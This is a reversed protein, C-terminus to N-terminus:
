YWHRWRARRKNTLIFLLSCHTFQSSSNVLPCHGLYIYTHHSVIYCSLWICLSLRFLISELVCVGFEGHIMFWSNEWFSVLTRSPTRRWLSILLRSLRSLIHYRFLELLTTIVFSTVTLRMTSLRSMSYQIVSFRFLVWTTVIFLLPLPFYLVMTPYCTVFWIIETFTDTM